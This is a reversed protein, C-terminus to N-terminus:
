RVTPTSYYGIGKVGAADMAQKFAASVSPFHWSAAADVWVHANGVQTLNM